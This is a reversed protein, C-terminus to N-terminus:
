ITHSSRLYNERHVLLENNSQNLARIIKGIRTYREMHARQESALEWQLTGLTGM